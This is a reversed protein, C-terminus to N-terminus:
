SFASAIIGVGSFWTPRRRKQSAAAEREFVIVDVRRAATGRVPIGIEMRSVRKM